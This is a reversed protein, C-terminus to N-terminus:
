AASSSFWWVSSPPTRMGFASCGWRSPSVRMSGAFTADGFYSGDTRRGPDPAPKRARAPRGPIRACRGGTRVDAGHIQPVEIARQEDGAAHQERREHEQERLLHDAPQRVLDGLGRVHQRPEQRLRRDGGRAVGLQFPDKGVDDGVDVERRDHGVRQARRAGPVQDVDIAVQDRAFRDVAQGRALRDSGHDPRADLMHPPLNAVEVAAVRRDLHAVAGADLDTVHVVALRPHQAVQAPHREHGHAAHQQQQQQAERSQGAHAGRFLAHDPDPHRLLRCVLEPGRQRRQHAPELQEARLRLILGRDRGRGHVLRHALHLAVHIAQALHRLAEAADSGRGAQRGLVHPRHHPVHHRVHAATAGAADRQGLAVLM